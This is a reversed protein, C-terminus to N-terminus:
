NRPSRDVAACIGTECALWDVRQDIGDNPVHDVILTTYVIGVKAAAVLPLFRAYFGGGFGLRYGHRDFAVGPVLVLDLERPEIVPLSADPELMGFRHRVLHAPDYPHLILHPEPRTLTRPVVWSKGSFQEILPMVSIENGFAIYAMVTHAERFVPWDALRGCVRANASAVDEPTMADRLARCRARLLPKDTSM